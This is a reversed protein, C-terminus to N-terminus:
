KTKRKKGFGKTQVVRGEVVDFVYEIQDEPVVKSTKTNDVTAEFAISESVHLKKFSQGKIKAVMIM